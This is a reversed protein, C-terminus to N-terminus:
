LKGVLYRSNSALQITSGAIRSLGPVRRLNGIPNVYTCVVGFDLSEPDRYADPVVRDLRCGVQEYIRLLADRRVATERGKADKKYVVSDFYQKALEFLVDKNDESRAVSLLATKGLGKVTGEGQLSALEGSFSQRLSEFSESLEENFEPNGDSKLNKLVWRGFGPMRSEFFAGRRGEKIMRGIQNVFLMNKETAQTANPMMSLSVVYVWDGKPDFTTELTGNDTTDEWSKFDEPTKSTPCSTIFGVLRSGKQVVRLWDGLMDLRNGIMNTAYVRLEDDSLGNEAYVKGFSQIEIDVLESIDGHNAPRTSVSGGLRPMREPSRLTNFFEIGM